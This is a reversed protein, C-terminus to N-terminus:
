LVGERLALAHRVAECVSEVPIGMMCRFDIPCERLFCPSCAVDARLITPKRSGAPGTLEPSTSGFLAVVQVGLASAVHMPGTDNTLLVECCSLTACLERLTTRGALNVVAAKGAGLRSALDAALGVDGKGGLIIFGAELRMALAAQAFRETPWRKAPGYEAGPNLGIVRKGGASLASLGFKEVAMEREADSVSVLPPCMEASGGMAAILGLYDYVHHAEAPYGEPGNGAEIRREIEAKSRKRMRASGERARVPHTLFVSRWGRAYGWRERAGGLWMELASRVSNPFVVAVDARLERVIWRTALLGAGDPIAVVEDVHPHGTWLDALKAQTVLSVHAEPYFERLRRLAPTTMVADGLWNVGRVVVRKVASHTEQTARM